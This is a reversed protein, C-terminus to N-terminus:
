RAAEAILRTYTDSHVDRNVRAVLELKSVAHYIRPVLVPLSPTVYVFADDPLRGDCLLCLWLASLRSVM